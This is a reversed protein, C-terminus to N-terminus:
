IALYRRAGAGAPGFSSSAAPSGAAKKMGPLRMAALHPDGPSRGGVLQRGRRGAADLLGAPRFPRRGGLRGRARLRDPALAGSSGRRLPVTGRLEAPRDGQHGRLSASADPVLDAGHCLLHVSRRPASRRPWLWRRRRALRGRFLRHTFAREHRRNLRCRARACRASRPHSSKACGDLHADPAAVAAQSFNACGMKRRRNICPGRRTPGDTRENSGPPM